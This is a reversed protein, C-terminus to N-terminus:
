QLKVKDLVTWTNVPGNCEAIWIENARFGSVWDEADGDGSSCNLSVGGPTIKVRGNRSLSDYFNIREGKEADEETIYCLSLHPFMPTRPQQNLRQHVRAHLDCLTPTPSISVFVSRFFHDGITVSKFAIDLQNIVEVASRLEAVTLKSDSPLSLLTIHPDFSPYSTEAVDSGSPRMKM